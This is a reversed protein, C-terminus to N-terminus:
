KVEEIKTEHRTIERVFYIDNKDKKIVIYGKNFLEKVTINSQVKIKKDYDNQIENYIIPVFCLVIFSMTIFGMWAVRGGHIISIEGNIKGEYHGGLMALSLFCMFIYTGIIFFLIGM